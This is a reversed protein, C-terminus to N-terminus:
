ASSPMRSEGSHSSNLRTSKRDERFRSFIELRAFYYDVLFRNREEIARLERLSYAASAACVIVMFLLPASMKVHLNADRLIRM